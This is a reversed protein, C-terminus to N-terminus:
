FITELYLKEVHPVQKNMIKKIKDAKMNKRYQHAIKHKPHIQITSDKQVISTITNDDIASGNCYNVRTVQIFTTRHWTATMESVAAFQWLGCM